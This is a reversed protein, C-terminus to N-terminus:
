LVEEYYFNMKNEIGIKLWKINFTIKYIRQPM